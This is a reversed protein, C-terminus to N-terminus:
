RVVSVPRGLITWADVAPVRENPGALLRLDLMAQGPRAARPRVTLDLSHISGELVGRDLAVMVGAM